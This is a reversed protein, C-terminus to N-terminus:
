NKYIYTYSNFSNLKNMMNERKRGILYTRKKKVGRLMNITKKNKMKYIYIHMCIYKFNLSCSRKLACM